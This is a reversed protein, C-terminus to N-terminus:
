SRRLNRDAIVQMVITRPLGTKEAIASVSAGGRYMAEVTDSGSGSEMKPPEEDDREGALTAWDGTELFTRARSLSSKVTGTPVGLMDAVEEYQFGNIAVLDVAKRQIPNLFRMRKRVVRLDYAASQGEQVPVLAAILGDPDPLERGKKRCQSFWDNRLITFLWGALNTDPQYQEFKLFARLITNQTLDQAQHHNYCLSLAYAYLRPEAALVGSEFDETWIPAVANL